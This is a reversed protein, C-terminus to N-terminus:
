SKYLENSAALMNQSSMELNPKFGYTKEFTDLAEQKTENLRGDFVRMVVQGEDRAALEM